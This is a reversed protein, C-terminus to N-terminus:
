SNYKDAYEEWGFEEKEDVYKDEWSKNNFKIDKELKVHKNRYNKTKRRRESHPRNKRPM